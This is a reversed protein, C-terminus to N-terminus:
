VIDIDGQEAIYKKLLAQTELGADGIANSCFIIGEAKKQKLLEFYTSLQKEFIPLPIEKKNGYDWFYMGMMLRKGQAFKFVKPLHEELNALEHGKIVWFSIGDFCEMYEELDRDLEHSYLVCWFDLGAANLKEKMKKLVAPPYHILREPAFFDDVIGGTINSGPKAVELIDLTFGLEHEPLGSSTDGMVAWKLERFNKFREAFPAFPPQINGAFPVVFANKIGYEEVFEEPTMKCPTPYWQNHSGALHLWNWLKDVLKM